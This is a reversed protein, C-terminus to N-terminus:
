EAPQLLHEPTTEGSMLIRYGLNGTTLHRDWEVESFLNCLTMTHGPEIAATGRMLQLLVDALPAFPSLKGCEFVEEPMELEVEPLGYVEMGRTALLYADEDTRGLAVGVLDYPYLTEDETRFAGGVSYELQVGVVDPMTELMRLVTLAREAISIPDEGRNGRATVEVYHTHSLMGDAVENKISGEELLASLKEKDWPEDHGVMTVGQPPVGAMASLEPLEGQVFVRGSYEPEPVRLSRGRVAGAETLKRRLEDNGEYGVQTESCALDLPTNGSPTCANVDAGYENLLYDLMVGSSKPDYFWGYVVAHLPTNGHEEEMQEETVKDAGYEALVRAKEVSGYVFCRLWPSETEVEAKMGAALMERLVEPSGHQVCLNLLEAEEDEIAKKQMQAADGMALLEKMCASSDNMAAVMLFAVLVDCDDEVLYKRYRQLLIRLGSVDNREIAGTIRRGILSFKIHYWLFCLALGALVLGVKVILKIWVTDM